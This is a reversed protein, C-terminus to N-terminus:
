TTEEEDSGMSEEFEFSDSYADDDGGDEKDGEKRPSRSQGKRPSRKPSSSTKTPSLKKPSSSVASAENLAVAQLPSSPPNGPALIGVSTASTVDTSGRDHVLKEIEDMSDDDADLKSESGDLTTPHGPRQSQMDPSGQSTGSDEGSEAGFEDDDDDDDHFQSQVIIAPKEDFEDDFTRRGIATTTLPTLPVQKGLPALPMAKSGLKEKDAMWRQTLSLSANEKPPSSSSSSELSEDARDNGPALHLPNVPDPDSKKIGDNAKPISPSPAAGGDSRNDMSADLDEADDFKLSSTAALRHQGSDFPPAASEDDDDDEDMDDESKGEVVTTTHGDFRSENTRMKAQMLRQALSPAAAAPKEPSSRNDDDDSSATADVGQKTPSAGKDLSTSLADDGSADFSNELDLSNELAVDPHADRGYALPRDNTESANEDDSLGNEDGNDRGPGDRSSQKGRQHHHAQMLREMEGLDVSMGDDMSDDVSHELTTSERMLQAIMNMDDEVATVKKEGHATDQQMRDDDDDDSLEDASAQTLDTFSLGRRHGAVGDGHKATANGSPALRPQGQDTTPSAAEDVRARTAQVDMLEASAEDDFSEDLSVDDARRKAVQTEHMMDREIDDLEAEDDDDDDDDGHLGTRFDFELGFRKMKTEHAAAAAARTRSADTTECSQSQFALRGVADGRESATTTNIAMTGGLAAHLLEHRSEDEDPDSLMAEDDDVSESLDAADDVHQHSAAAGLCEDANAEITCQERPAVSPAMVPKEVSTAPPTSVMPPLRTPSNRRPSPEKAPSSSSATTSAKARAAEALPVDKTNSIELSHTKTTLQQSTSGEHTPESHVNADSMENAEMRVQPGHRDMTETDGSEIRRDLSAVPTLHSKVGVDDNDSAGPSPHHPSTGAVFGDNSRTALSPTAALLQEKNENAPSIEEEDDDDIEEDGSDDIEEADDHQDVRPPVSAATANARTLLHYASDQKLNGVEADGHGNDRQTETYRTEKHKVGDREGDPKNASLVDQMEKRAQENPQKVPSVEDSREHLEDPESLLEDESEYLAHFSPVTTIPGSSPTAADDVVNDFEDDFDNDDETPHRRASHQSQERMLREVEDHEEDLDSETPLGKRVDFSRGTTAQSSTRTANTGSLVLSAVKKSSGGEQSSGNEEDSGADDGHSARVNAASVRSAANYSPSGQKPPSTAAASVSADVASSALKDDDDSADFDEDFSDDAKTQRTMSQLTQEKMLREVDDDDEIDLGVVRRTQFDFSRGGAKSTDLQSTARPAVDRRIEGLPTLAKKQPSVEDDSLSDNINAHTNQLLDVTDRTAAHPLGAMAIPSPSRVLQSAPSAAAKAPSSAASSAASESDEGDISVDDEIEVEDDSSVDKTAHSLEGGDERKCSANATTLNDRGLPVQSTLQLDEAIATEVLPVRSIALALPPLHKPSTQRGHPSSQKPPSTDGMSSVGDDNDDVQSQADSLVEDASEQEDTIEMDMSSSAHTTSDVQSAVIDQDGGHVHEMAHPLGNVAITTDREILRESQKDVGHVTSAVVVTTKEAPDQMEHRTLGGISNTIPLTPHEGLQKVQDRDDISSSHEDAATTRSDEALSVKTKQHGENANAELSRPHPSTAEQSEEVSEDIEDPDSLVEDESENEHTNTPPVLTTERAIASQKEDVESEGFEDDDEETTERRASVHSREQMLREVEDDDEEFDTAALMGKRFDFPVRTTTMESSQVLSEKGRSGENKMPSGERSSCSEHTSSVENVNHANGSSANGQKEQSSMLEALPLKSTTSSSESAPSAEVSAAAEHSPTSVMTTPGAAENGEDFSEDSRQASQQMQEQLLREEDDDDDDDDDSHTAEFPEHAMSKAPLGEEAESVEDESEVEHHSEGDPAHFHVLARPTAVHEQAEVEASPDLSTEEDDSDQPKSHVVNEDLGAPGAHDNMARADGVAAVMAEPDIQSGEKADKLSFEKSPKNSPVDPNQPSPDCRSAVIACAVAAVAGQKWCMNDDHAIAGDLRIENPRSVAIAEPERRLATQAGSMEEQTAQSAGADHSSVAALRQLQENGNKPPTLNVVAVDVGGNAKDECRMSWSAAAVWPSAPMSSSITAALQNLRTALAPLKQLSSVVYSIDQDKVCLQTATVHVDATLQSQMVVLRAHENRRDSECREHAKDLTTLAQHVHNVGYLVTPAAGLQGRLMAVETQLKQAQTQLTEMAALTKDRAAQRTLTETAFTQVADDVQGLKAEIDSVVAERVSALEDDGRQIAADLRARSAQAEAEKAVWAEHLTAAAEQERAADVAWAAKTQELAAVAAAAREELAAQTARLAAATLELEDVDHQLTQIKAERALLDHVLTDLRATLQPVDVADDTTAAPPMVLTWIRHLDDHTRKVAAELSGIQQKLVSLLPLADHHTTTQGRGTTALQDVLSKLEAGQSSAMERESELATSLVALQQKAALERADRELAWAQREDKLATEKVAWARLKTEVAEKEAVLAAMAEYHQSDSAMANAKTAERLRELATETEAVQRALVAKDADARAVATQAAQLQSTVDALEAELRVVDVKVASRAEEASALAEQADALQRKADEIEDAGSTAARELEAVKTELVASTNRLTDTTASEATVQTKLAAVQAVLDRNSAELRAQEELTAEFTRQVARHDAELGHCKAELDCIEQGLAVERSKLTAAAERRTEDVTNDLAQKAALVVELERRHESLQSQWASEQAAATKEASELASQVRALARAHDRRDDDAETEWRSVTGQIARLLVEVPQDAAVHCVNALAAVSAAVEAERATVEQLQRQAQVLAEQRERLNATHETTAKAASARLTAEVNAKSTRVCTLDAQVRELQVRVIALESTTAELDRVLTPSMSGPAPPLAKVRDIVQELLAVRTSTEMAKTSAMHKAQAADAQAETWQQTLRRVHEQSHKHELKLREADHQCQQLKARMEASEQRAQQLRTKTSELHAVDQQWADQLCQIKGAAAAAQLAKDQLAASLADIETGCKTEAERLQATLKAVQADRDKVIRSFHADMDQRVQALQELETISQLLKARLVQNEVHNTKQLSAQITKIDADARLTSDSTAQLMGHCDTWKREQDQAAKAVITELRRVATAHVTLEDVILDRLNTRSVFADGGVRLMFKRLQDEDGMGGTATADLVAVRKSLGVVRGEITTHLDGVKTDVRKQLQELEQRVDKLGADVAFQVAKEFNDRQGQLTKLFSTTKAEQMEVVAELRQAQREEFAAMAKNVAVDLTHAIVNGDAHRSAQKELEQIRKTLADVMGELGPLKQARLDVDGLRRELAHCLDQAIAVGDLKARTERMDVDVMAKWKLLTTSQTDLRPILELLKLAEVEFTELQTVKAEIKTQFETAKKSSAACEASLGKVDVRVDGVLKEFGNARAAIDVEVSKRIEDLPVLSQFATSSSGKPASDDQNTDWARADRKPKQSDLIKTAMHRNMTSSEDLVKKWKNISAETAGSSRGDGLVPNSRTRALLGPKVDDRKEGIKRLLNLNQNTKEIIAALDSEWDDTLVSNTKKKEM